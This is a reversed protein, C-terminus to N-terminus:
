TRKGSQLGRKRQTTANFMLCNTENQRMNEQVVFFINPKRM